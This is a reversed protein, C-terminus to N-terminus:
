MKCLDALFGRPLDAKFTSYPLDIIMNVYMKRALVALVTLLKWIKNIVSEKYINKITM